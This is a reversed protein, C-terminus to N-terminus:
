SPPNEHQDELERLIEMVRDGRELSANFRFTLKPLIKIPLRRGIERQWVPRNKNLLKMVHPADHAADLVSIYIFAHKLDPSLDIETVTVLITEFDLSRKILENIHQRIVEAVRITRRTAM